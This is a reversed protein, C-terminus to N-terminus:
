RFEVIIIRGNFCDSVWVHNGGRGCKLPLNLLTIVNDFGQYIDDVTLEKESRDLQHEFNHKFFKTHPHKKEAVFNLTAM